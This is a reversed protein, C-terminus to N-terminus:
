SLKKIREKLGENEEPYDGSEILKELGTKLEKTLNLNVAFQDANFERILQNNMDRPTKDLIHGIEHAIMAYQEENTLKLQQIVKENIAISLPKVIRNYACPDTSNAIASFLPHQENIGFITCTDENFNEDIEKEFQDVFSKFIEIKQPNEFLIM